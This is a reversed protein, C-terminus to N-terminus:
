TGVREEVTLDIPQKRGLQLTRWGVTLHFVAITLVGVALFLSGPDAVGVAAGAAGALGVVIAFWALRPGFASGSRMALGFLAIGIPALLAGTALMTDFVSQAGHWAFEIARQDEPTADPANYLDALPATSVHLLSSAAMIALGFAAFVTGFLAAAQHAPRLVRHLVFVHLAFLMLSGLYLFHEAIRGAEINEFDILTEVDSADPLGGASVVVFSAILALGGGLGAWGGWRLLQGDATSPQPLRNDPPASPAAATQVDSTSSHGM